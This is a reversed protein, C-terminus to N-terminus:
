YMRLVEVGNNTRHTTCSGLGFKKAFYSSATSAIRDCDYEGKPITIVDGVGIHDAHKKVHTTLEGLPYFSISRKKLREDETINTYVNGEDDTVKYKCNTNKLFEIVKEVGKKQLHHM